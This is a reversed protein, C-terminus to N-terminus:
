SGLVLVICSFKLGQKRSESFFVDDICSSFTVSKVNKSNYFIYLIKVENKKPSLTENHLRPQGQLVGAETEWTSLNCAHVVVGLECSVNKLACSLSTLFM